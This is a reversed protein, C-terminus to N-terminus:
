DRVCGKPDSNENEGPKLKFYTYAYVAICIFNSVFLTMSMDLCLWQIIGVLLWGLNGCSTWLKIMAPDKAYMGMARCFTAIWGLVSLLILTTERDM